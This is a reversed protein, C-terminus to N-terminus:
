FRMILNKRGKCVECCICYGGQGLFALLRLAGFGKLDCAFRGGHLLRRRRLWLWRHRTEQWNLVLGLIVHMLMQKGEQIM